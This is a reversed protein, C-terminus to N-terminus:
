NKYNNKKAKELRSLELQKARVKKEFEIVKKSKSDITNLWGVMRLSKKINNMKFFGYGARLFYKFANKQDRDGDYALGFYELLMPDNPHIKEAKKLFEISAGYDGEAINRSAFVLLQLFEPLGEVSTSNPVGIKKDDIRRQGYASNLTFFGILVFFLIILISKNTFVM